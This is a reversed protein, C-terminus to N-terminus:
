KSGTHGLGEEREPLENNDDDDTTLFKAFVGQCIRDGDEIAFVESGENRLLVKIHKGYYDADITGVGNQLTIQNNFALGSRARLQLEEDDMMYATLGTEVPVMENPQIYYSGVARIDYGASKKTARTPKTTRGEYEPLVQFGRVKGSTFVDQMYVSM